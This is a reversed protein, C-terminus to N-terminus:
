DKVGTERFFNRLGETYTKGSFLFGDNHDGNIELFMKECRLADFVRRGQAYPVLTDDDSHVVLTPATISAAVDLTPYRHRLLPGMPFYPYLHRGMDAISTFTSELILAKPQVQTALRAAVAGGLSRGLIVISGPPVGRSVLHDWAAQADLYTGQEGPSGGSRGYGRYDFLFTGLGLEHFLRATELRHSINGANGHCYMVVSRGPRAEVLWGNLRVGDASDFHVDEYALDAQDPTAVIKRSGPHYVLRRQFLAMGLATAVYVAIIAGLVYLM